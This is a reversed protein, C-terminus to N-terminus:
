GSGREVRGLLLDLCPQLRPPGLEGSAFSLARRLSSASSTVSGARPGAAAAAHMRDDAGPLADLRDPVRDAESTASPGSISVSQYLKVASLLGSFWGAREIRSV